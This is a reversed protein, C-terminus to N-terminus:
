NPVNVPSFVKRNNGAFKWAEVVGFQLECSFDLSNTIGIKLSRYIPLDYYFPFNSNFKIAVLDLRPVHNKSHVDFDFPIDFQIMSDLFVEGSPLIDDWISCMDFCESPSIPHLHYELSGIPHIAKDVASVM